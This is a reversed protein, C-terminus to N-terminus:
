SIEFMIYFSQSRLIKFSLDKLKTTGFFIKGKTFQGPLNLVIHQLRVTVVTVDQASVIASVHFVAFTLV